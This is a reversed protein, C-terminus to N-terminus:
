PATAAELKARLGEAFAASVISPSVRAAAAAAAASAEPTALGAASILADRLGDPAEPDFTRAFSPEATEDLGSDAPVITPLGFTLALLLAGSNLTRRYPLVALDAARLFLQMENAPIKRADLLVTPESAARELMEGVGPEDTPAGALVLRRPRDPPLAAWADLLEPIGKYPRLAGLVLYVLEDPLLGLEARADLRSVSDEYAGVYSPHPAQFIREPPLQYYPAVLAATRTSMVHIADARAAVEGALRAEEDDYRSEHPLINHVTWALRAGAAHHVDLTRLFADARRRADKRGDAEKMVLHLWHLHLVVPLGRRELELLEDLQEDRRVRIPGLGYARCERYLLDQFPNTVFSPWTALLWPRDFAGLGRLTAAAEITFDGRRPRSARPRREM